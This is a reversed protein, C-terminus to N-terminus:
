NRYYFHNIAYTKLYACIESVYKIILLNNIYTVSECPGEVTLVRIKGAHVSKTLHKIGECFM